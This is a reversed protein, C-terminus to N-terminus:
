RRASRVREVGGNNHFVPISEIGDPFVKAVFSCTFEPSPYPTSGFFDGLRWCREKACWSLTQCTKYEIHMYMDVHSVVKVIIYNFDYAVIECPCERVQVDSEPLSLCVFKPVTTACGGLLAVLAILPVWRM